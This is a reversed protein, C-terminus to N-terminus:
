AESGSSVGGGGPAGVVLAGRDRKAGSACDLLQPSSTLAPMFAQSPCDVVLVVPGAPSHSLAFSVLHAWIGFPLARLASYATLHM